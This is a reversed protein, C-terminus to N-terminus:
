LLVNKYRWPTFNWLKVIYKENNKEVISLSANEIKFNRLTSYPVKVNEYLFARTIVIHSVILINEKGEDLVKKWGEKFRESVDRFSEGDPIKVDPSLMLKKYIDEYKVRVEDMRMGEWVGCDLEIFEDIVKIESKIKENIIEATKYARKLPSAYIKDIKFNRLFKATEKVQEVGKKSLENNILGQVKDKENWKTSGHRVLYIIM